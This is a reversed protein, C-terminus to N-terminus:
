GEILKYFNESFCLDTEGSGSRIGKGSGMGGGMSWLVSSLVCLFVSSVVSNSRPELM